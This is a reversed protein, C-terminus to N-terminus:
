FYCVGISVTGLMIPQSSQDQLGYCSTSGPCGSLSNADCYKLCVTTGTGPDICTYTPACDGEINANCSQNQTKTGAEGCVTLQRMLGTSEQRLECASGSPCGNNNLPNCNPTCMTVGPIANGSGDDLQLLCLGGPAQCEADSSCFKLCQGTSSSANVCTLGAQCLDSASSGCAQGNGDTGAQGCGIAGGAVTCAEGGSCGCQPSTLKCPSGSCGGSSSTSSTTSSSSSTTTSGSSSSTSTTGSSSSVTTTGSSTTSMTSGTSTTGGDGGLGMFDSGKACSAGVLVVLLAGFTSLLRARM